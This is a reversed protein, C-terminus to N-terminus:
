RIGEEVETILQDMLQEPHRCERFILNILHNEVEAAVELALAANLMAAGDGTEGFHNLYDARFRLNAIMNERDSTTM